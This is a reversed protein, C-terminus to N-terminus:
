RPFVAWSPKPVCCGSARPGSMSHLALAGNCCVARWTLQVATGIVRAGCLIVAVLDGDVGSIPKSGVGGAPKCAEHGEVIANWRGGSSAMLPVASPRSRMLSGVRLIVGGRSVVNAGHLADVTFGCSHNSIPQYRGSGTPEDRKHWKPEPGLTGHRLIM